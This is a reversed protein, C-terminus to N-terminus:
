TITVTVTVTVTITITITTTTTITIIYPLFSSLLDSTQKISSQFHIISPHRTDCPHLVTHAIIGYFDIIKTKDDTRMSDQSISKQLFSGNHAVINYEHMIIHWIFLLIVPSLYSTHGNLTKETSTPFSVNYLPKM